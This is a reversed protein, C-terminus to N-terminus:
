QWDSLGYKSLIKHLEGTERMKILGRTFIDAYEKSKAHNPSFAIYVRDGENLLGVTRFASNLGMLKAQQWFVNQDEIVVDLKGQQLLKILPDLPTAGHSYYVNKPNRVLFTDLEEGYSYGKIVGIRLNKLGQIETITQIGSEKNIFFANQARGFEKEPFIFDPADELFAGIIANFRGQRTSSIAREWPRVSYVVSHGHQSFIHEAIEIGYGSLTSNPAGNYPYWEDATITITDARCFCTFLVLFFSLYLKVNVRM